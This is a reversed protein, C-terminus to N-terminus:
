WPYPGLVQAGRLAAFAPVEVMFGVELGVGGGIVLLPPDLVTGLDLGLTVTGRTGPVVGLVQVLQEGFEILFDAAGPHAAVHVGVPALPM